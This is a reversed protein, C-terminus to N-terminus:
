PYERLTDAGRPKPCASCASGYCQCAEPHLPAQSSQESFNPRMHGVESLSLVTLSNMGSFLSMSYIYIRTYVTLEYILYKLAKVSPTVKRM